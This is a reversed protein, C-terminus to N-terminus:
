PLASAARVGMGCLWWPMALLPALGLLFLVPSGQIGEPMVKQQGIFFSGTAIFFAACMRWIHRATRERGELRGSQIVRWDAAAVFSILVGFALAKGDLGAAAAVFLVAAMGAAALFAWKEFYGVPGPKLRGAGWATAVLYVGFLSGMFSRHVALFEGIAGATVLMVLMAAFFLNGGLRHLRSGKRSLAAVGGGVLGSVGAAIHLALAAPAAAQVIQPADAALQLSM